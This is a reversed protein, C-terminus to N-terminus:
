TELRCIEKCLLLLYNAKIFYFTSLFFGQTWGWYLGKPAKKLLSM